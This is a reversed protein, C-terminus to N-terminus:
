VANTQKGHLDAITVGARPNKERPDQIQIARRLKTQALGLQKMSTETESAIFAVAEAMASVLDRLEKGQIKFTESAQRDYDEFAHVTQALAMEVEAPSSEEHLSSSIGSIQRQFQVRSPIEAEVAHMMMCQLLLRLQKVFAATPATDPPAASGAAGQNLELAIFDNSL